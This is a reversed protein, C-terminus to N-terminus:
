VICSLTMVVGSTARIIFLSYSLSVTSSAPLYSKRCATSSSTSSIMFSFSAAPSVLPALFRCAFSSLIISPSVSTLSALAAYRSPRSTLIRPLLSILSSALSVILFSGLALVSSFASGLASFVTFGTSATYPSSSVVNVSAIFPTFPLGILSALLVLIIFPRSVSLVTTLLVWIAVSSLTTSANFPLISISFVVCNSPVVPTM